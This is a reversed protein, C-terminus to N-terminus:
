AMTITYSSGGMGITAIVYDYDTVDASRSAASGSASYILSNSGDENISMVTMNGVYASLSAFGKTNILLVIATHDSGSAAYGSAFNHSILTQSDSRAIVADGANPISTFDFASGSGCRFLAM